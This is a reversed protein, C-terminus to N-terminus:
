ASAAQMRSATGIRAGRKAKIEGSDQTEGPFQVTVRLGPHNDDLTVVLGHLDAIAAVISMGLGSGPSGQSHELRQFREFVRQRNEPAIGPGNDTICLAVEPSGRLTM